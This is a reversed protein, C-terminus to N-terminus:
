GKMREEGVQPIQEMSNHAAVNGALNIADAIVKFAAQVAEIEDACGALAPQMVGLLAVLTGPGKSQVEFVKVTRGDEITLKVKTM